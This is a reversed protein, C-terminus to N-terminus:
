ARRSVRVLSSVVLFALLVLISELLIWAAAQWLAATQQLALSSGLTIVLIMATLASVTRAVHTLLDM